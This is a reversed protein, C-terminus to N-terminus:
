RVRGRRQDVTIARGGDLLRHSRHGRPSRPLSASTPRVRAPPLPHTSCGLRRFRGDCSERRIDSREATYKGEIRRGEGRDSRGSAAESASTAPSPQRSAAGGTTPVGGVASKTSAAPSEEKQTVLTWPVTRM